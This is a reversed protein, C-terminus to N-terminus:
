LHQPSLPRAAMRWRVKRQLPHWLSGSTSISAGRSPKMFGPRPAASAIAAIQDHGANACTGGDFTNSRCISSM